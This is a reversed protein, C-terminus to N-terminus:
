RPRTGHERSMYGLLCRLTFLHVRQLTIQSAASNRTFLFFLTPLLILSVFSLMANFRQVYAGYSTICQSESFRGKLYSCFIQVIIFLELM